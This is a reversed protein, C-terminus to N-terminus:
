GWRRNGELLVEHVPCTLVKQQAGAQPQWIIKPEVM